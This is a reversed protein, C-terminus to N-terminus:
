ASARPTHISRAVVAAATGAAPFEMARVIRCAKKYQDPTPAYGYGGPSILDSPPYEYPWVACDAYAEAFWEAPTVVSGDPLKALFWAGVRVGPEGKSPAPIARRAGLLGLFAPRWRRALYPQLDAVHGAEHLLLLKAKLPLDGVYEAAAPDALYGADPFDMLQGWRGYHVCARTPREVEGPNTCGRLRMRVAVNPQPANVAGEALWARYVRETERNEPVHLVIGARAPSACLLTLLCVAWFARLAGSPAGALYRGTM